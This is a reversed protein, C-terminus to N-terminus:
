LDYQNEESKKGPYGFFASALIFTLGASIVLWAIAYYSFQVSAEIINMM